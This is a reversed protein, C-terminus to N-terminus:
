GVVTRPGEYETRKTVFDYLEKVAMLGIEAKMDTATVVYCWNGRENKEIVCALIAVEHKEELARKVRALMQQPIALPHASGWPTLTEVSKEKEM